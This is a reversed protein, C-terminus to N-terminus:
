KESQFDFIYSYYHGSKAYGDHILLTHLSYKNEESSNKCYLEKISENIARLQNKMIGVCKVVENKYNKILIKLFKLKKKKLIRFEPSFGGQSDNIKPNRQLDVFKCINELITELSLGSNNYNCFQEIHSELVRAKHKLELMKKRIPTYQEKNKRLFRDTCIEQSFEFKKNTKTASKTTRDYKM